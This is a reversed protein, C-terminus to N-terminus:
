SEQLQIEAYVARHDSGPVTHVACALVACDRNVLVHDLTLLAPRGPPGWTPALATGTQRAADAYGSRLLERFAAHDLTANFDGAAIRPLGPAHPHLGRLEQRWQAARGGHAMMPACSHVCVLEVAEGGPLELLATPQANRVPKLSPGEGLPYRSYIGCGEGAPRVDTCAHPLLDALGAQKLRREADATLEQLFLVDAGLERALAVTADADARGYWMNLTVVRLVAGAATPPVRSLGRSGVVLGLAGAAAAAAAAPGRRGALGLGLAAWPAAFAVQPTFSVLPVSRAETRRVRDAGTIRAAAWAALGGAV